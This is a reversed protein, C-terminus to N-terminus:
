KDKVDTTIRMKYFKENKRRCQLKVKFSIAQLLRMVFKDLFNIHSNQKSTSETLNSM